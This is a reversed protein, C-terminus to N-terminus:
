NMLELVGADSLFAVFEPLKQLGVTGLFGTAVKSLDALKEKLIGKGEEVLCEKLKDLLKTKINQPVESDPASNIEAEVKKIQDPKPQYYNNIVTKTMTQTNNDGIQQQEVNGNNNITVSKGDMMTEKILSKLTKNSAKLELCRKCLRKILTSVKEIDDKNLITFTAQGLPVDISKLKLNYAFETEDNFSNSINIAFNLDDQNKCSISFSPLSTFHEEFEGDRFERETPFRMKMYQDTYVYFCKVGEINWEERATNFLVVGTMNAKTFNTDYLNSHSFNANFLNANGLNTKSFNCNSLYSYVLNSNSLNTGHLDANVINVKYLDADTLNAGSLRSFTLESKVIKANILRAYSLDADNLGSYSLDADSLDASSLDASSLNTYRLDAYRLDANKLDASCLTAYRLDVHRLDASRLNVSRLNVSRFDLKERNIMRFKNWEDIDDNLSCKLLFDLQEQDAM